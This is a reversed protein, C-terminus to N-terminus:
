IDSFPDNLRSVRMRQVPLVLGEHVCRAEFEDKLTKKTKAARQRLFLRYHSMCLGRRMAPQECHLCRGLRVRENVKAVKTQKCNVKHM